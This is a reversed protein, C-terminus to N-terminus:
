DRGDFPTARVLAVRLEPARFGNATRRTRMSDIRYTTCILSRAVSNVVDGCWGLGFDGVPRAFRGRHAHGAQLSASASGNPSRRFFHSLEEQLSSHLGRDGLHSLHSRPARGNPITIAYLCLKQFSFIKSHVQCHNRFGECAMTGYTLWSNMM